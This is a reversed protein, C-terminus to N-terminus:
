KPWEPWMPGVIDELGKQDNHGNRRSQFKPWETRKVMKTRKAIKTTKVRKAM